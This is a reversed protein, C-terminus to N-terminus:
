QRTGVTQRARHAAVAVEVDEDLLDMHISRIEAGSLGAAGGGVVVVDYHDKTSTANPNAPDTLVANREDAEALPASRQRQKRDGGHLSCLGLSLFEQPEQM